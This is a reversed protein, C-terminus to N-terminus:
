IKRGGNELDNYEKSLATLGEALIYMCGPLHKIESTNSDEASIGAAVDALITALDCWNEFAINLDSLRNELNRMDIIQEEM